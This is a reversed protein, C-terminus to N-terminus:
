LYLGKIKIIFVGEKFLEFNARKQTLLPSNTFHPIIVDCIDKLKRVKYNVTDKYSNIKGVGFFAQIKELM